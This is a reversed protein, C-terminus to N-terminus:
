ELQHITAEPVVAKAIECLHKHHTLYIVQGIGAMEGFLRFVEESRIHDFTEMIDDAIFPVSQQFQAFEYYGALRLALYLQFRAGKSLADAVKSQGDRQMAILVEGGKLPQTTLGSYQGQTMLKFADSARAMMGSRHRERYARLANGASMIGLKLEIYRTATEEIELVITRREADLRAVASDGGIDDIKDAARTQRILQQQLASDLQQVRQEGQGKEIALSEFDTEDLVARAEEFKELSLEAAVRDELEAVSTRLRDRERLLEDRQAVDTLSDVGFAILVENKRREHISTENDVINREGQLRKLDALLAAKTDRAREARDLREGLRVALQEAEGDKAAEGVDAAISRVESLFDTRDDEMKDIRLQLADREQVSKALNSLQELVTSLGSASVGNELWTGKLTEGITALWEEERREAMALARRRVVLDEERGNVTRLAEAHEADLKRQRDLFLEALAVAAELTDDPAPAIGVSTLARILEIQIQEGAEAAREAKKRSLEIQGWAALADARVEVRDELRGILRELSPEIGHGLLEGGAQHVEAAKTELDLGQQAYQQRLRSLDASAEALARTTARMEALDSANALRGLGVGDDRALALAFDDATESSLAARHTEWAVDRARRSAAAAEDDVVDSSARFADLRAAHRTSSSECEALREALLSGARALDTATTKWSEIQGESPVTMSGLARGDGAWPGLAARLEEWRIAAADEEERAARIEAQHSSARAKSLASGLKARVSEPVAREEGVRDRASQLADLAAAIEDHAARVTTTIGSRQEILTRLTGVTAAPLLLKAPDKESTRGLASLCTAVTNNLIQLQVNRTPLDFGASSFRVKSEALNRVRESVDLILEDVETSAISAALREVEGVNGALRTRLSADDDILEAISGRWTRTPSATEPLGELQIRKRRIDALMPRAREFRAIAELRAALIARENVIDDYQQAADRREAELGEYTSALTDIDDRRSKLDALRKKLLAIETGQAQKRHLADADAELANLTDTAHGLGASATFLLKGLDGRSELIAEGGAELTDDDLSFMTAYADRSLGALHATIAMESIPKGTADLLSNNRQKTRTFAQEVGALELVGGLRMASYEHIFNYKSREEIGFLLDMFGSLATSKGAENLGFVIHLDPESTPKPGFDITRDTFKGYRVLDLRRLRM